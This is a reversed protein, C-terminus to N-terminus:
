AVICRKAKKKLSTESAITKPKYNKKQFPKKLAVLVCIEFIDQLRDREKASCELYIESRIAKCM